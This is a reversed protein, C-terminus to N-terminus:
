AGAKIPAVPLAPHLERQHSATEDQVPMFGHRLYLAAAEPTDTRLRVLHFVNGADDLLRQVLASAVGQRRALRRVYLHRLRGVTGEAVYPDRNLGCVGVLNDQSFAGLFREGPQNFRNSGSVWDRVLRDVFHFGESVAEIRLSAMGPHAITTPAIRFAPTM